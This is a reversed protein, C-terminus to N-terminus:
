QELPEAPCFVDRQPLEGSVLFRTAVADACDNRGTFSLVHGGNDFSVMRSREGLKQRLAVAGDLPTAPDKTSQFLLASGGDLHEVPAPAPPDFPWFACPWINAAAAGVIPFLEDAILVDRQYDAPSEPWDADGCVVAWLAAYGNDEPVEPFAESSAGAVVAPTTPQARERLAAAAEAGRARARKGAAERQDILYLITALEAFSREDRLAIRTLERYWKHDITFGPLPYPEAEVEALLEFYKQRVAAPTAGLGFSADNAAAYEAFGPFAIEVAPGWASFTERWIRDPHVVSDLMFRDTRQPFLSAYVSGLYTGYSYGLYNIKQEGLAARLVDMDRATNATTIHPLLHGSTAACSAAARQAYAVNESIDGDPEPYPTVRVLDQDAPALACSVPASWAIGRPDFGVLDYRERISAPLLQTLRTPGFLGSQGPGGPNYLLVGRHAPSPAAEIRSVAIEITEGTPDAYDLPVTLTACQQRPDLGEMPPCDGWALADAAPAAGAPAAIAAIAAAAALLSRTVLKIM